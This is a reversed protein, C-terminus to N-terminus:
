NEQDYTILVSALWFLVGQFVFLTAYYLSWGLGFTFGDKSQMDLCPRLKEQYQKAIREQGNYAIVTKVEYLAEESLGGAERYAAQLRFVSKMGSGEIIKGAFIQIPLQLLALLGLQVSVYFAIFWSNIFMLVADFFVMVKEGAAQEITACEMDISGAMQMANKKDYFSLPKRILAKFYNYRFQLSQDTGVRIFCTVAIIGIFLAMIGLVFLLKAIGVEADYFEDVSVTVDIGNFIFGMQLALFGPLVAHGATAVLGIGMLFFDTKSAYRFVDKLSAIKPEEAKPILPNSDKM